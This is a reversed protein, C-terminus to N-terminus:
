SNTQTLLIQGDADFFELTYSIQNQQIAETLHSPTSKLWSQEALEELTTGDPEGQYTMQFLFCSGARVGYIACIQEWQVPSHNIVGDFTLTMTLQASVAEQPVDVAALMPAYVKEEGTWYGVQRPLVVLTPEEGKREWLLLSGSGDRLAFSHIHDETVGLLLAYGDNENDDTELVITSPKLLMQRELRRLAERIPTCSVGLSEQLENVNVRSGLPLKLSIIDSRLREYVQDVLSRKKISSM